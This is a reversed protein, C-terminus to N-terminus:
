GSQNNLIFCLCMKKETTNMGNQHVALTTDVNKGSKKQQFDEYSDYLYAGFPERAFTHGSENKLINSYDVFFKNPLETSAKSITKPIGPTEDTVVILSVQSSM